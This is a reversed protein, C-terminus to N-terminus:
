LNIEMQRLIMFCIRGTHLVEILKMHVEYIDNYNHIEMAEKIRSFKEESLYFNINVGGNYKKIDTEGNDKKIWQPYDYIFHKHIIM